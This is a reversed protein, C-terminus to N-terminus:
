ATFFLFLSNILTDSQTCLYSIFVYLSYYNVHKESIIKQQPSYNDTERM